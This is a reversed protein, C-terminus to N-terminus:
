RRKMERIAVVKGEVFTIWTRLVTHERNSNGETNELGPNVTGNVFSPSTVTGESEPKHNDYAWVTQHVNSSTNEFVDDPKGLAIYVVDTSDGIDIIHKRVRAQSQPSLAAFAIPNKDIRGQVANCGAIMLATIATLIRPFANVCNM